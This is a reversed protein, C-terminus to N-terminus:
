ITDIFQSPAGGQTEPCRVWHDASVEELTPLEKVCHSKQLPCRGAWPCGRVPPRSNKGSRHVTDAWPFTKRRLESPLAALMELTYPHRASVREGVPYSEVILGGFMVAVKDCVTHLIELDHSILLLALGRRTMTRRLLDLVRDRSVADLASTPEDAILVEPDAALCRALAVRQRQGGSLEHPYRAALDQNLGVEKLLEGVRHPDPQPLAENLADHIRQRPNLSGAPDQFLMQVRRRGRRLDRGALSSFDSGEFKLSGALPKLHRSLARGLTTKGCGSEGALGLARGAVLDLDVGAVAARTRRGAPSRNTGYGAVLNRAQLVPVPGDPSPPVEELRIGPDTAQDEGESGSEEVRPGSVAAIRGAAMTMMRTAVLPVLDHDHTIFLLAMGRERCVRHIVALIDRQVTVDLATTPEDAILLDPDCALAAALLVRQRMGGSLQHPYSRAKDGPDSINMETLLTVAQSQAQRRSVAQHLRVTEAIQDGVTLVPNLSTQPEQLVLSMGAGRVRRWAPGDPDVLREKQWTIDGSSRAGVPLLGLLARALLSKGCGSPGVLAVAEGEAIAFDVGKLVVNDRGSRGGPFSVELNKVRLLDTM